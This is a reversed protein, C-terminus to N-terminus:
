TKPYKEKIEEIKSKWGDYGEHYLTDLQDIISPYEKARLRQYENRDYEEKLREIEDLITKEDPKPIDNTDYWVMDEYKDGYCTWQSGPYLSLLAQSIKIQDKNTIM